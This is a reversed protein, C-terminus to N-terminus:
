DLQPILFKWFLKKVFCFWFVALNEGTEEKVLGRETGVSLCQSASQSVAIFVSGYIVNCKVWGNVLLVTVWM